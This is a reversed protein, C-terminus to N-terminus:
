VIKVWKRGNVKVKKSDSGWEEAPENKWYTAVIREPYEIKDEKKIETLYGNEACTLPTGPKYEKDVYALVFGAVAVDMQNLGPKHGMNMGYTDSDIGIIGEDLYKSSKYYKEGDFCYCYGPEVKCEDDVPICDALDNWVANHVAGAYIHGGVGLGGSIVVAGTETDSSATTDSFTKVGAFTQNGTTVIGSTSAGAEVYSSSITIKGNTTDATLEINNGAALTLTDTPSDAEVTANGVTVNSFANQNVEAKEAIGDLKAKDTSSMLGDADKTAVSSPITVTHEAFATTHGYEDVTASTVKFTEGFGPAQAATDGKITDATKNPGTKDHTITITGAGASTAAATTVPSDGDGKITLTTDVSGNWSDIAKVPTSAGDVISLSHATKDATTATTANGSVDGTLNGSFTAAIATPLKISVPTSGDFNVGDSTHTGDTTTLSVATKLKSTTDANGKVYKIYAEKFNHSADGISTKENTYPILPRDVRISNNDMVAIEDYGYYKIEATGSAAPHDAGFKSVYFGIGPKSATETFTGDAKEIYSNRGSRIGLHGGSRNGTDTRNWYGPSGGSIYFNEPSTWPSPAPAGAIEEETLDMSTYNASGDYDYNTGAGSSVIIKNFYGEKFPSWLTGITQTNNVPVLDSLLNPSKM